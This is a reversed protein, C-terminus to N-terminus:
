SFIPAPLPQYRDLLDSLWTKGIEFGKEQDKILLEYNKRLYKEWYDGNKNSSNEIENRVQKHLEKRAEDVDFCTMNDLRFSRLYNWLKVELPFEDVEYSNYEAPIYESWINHNVSKKLAKPLSPMLNEHETIDCTDLKAAFEKWAVDKERIPILVPAIKKGVEYNAIAAPSAMKLWALFEKLESKDPYRATFRSLFDIANEVDGSENRLILAQALHRASVSDSPKINLGIEASELASNWDKRYMALQALISHAHINDPDISIVQELLNSAQAREKETDSEILLGALEVRCHVQEPFRRTTEWLVWQARHYQGSHLLAKEWLMWRIPEDSDLCLSLHIWQFIQPQIEPDLIEFKKMLERVCRDLVRVFHYHEGTVHLYIEQRSMEQHVIRWASQLSHSYKIQSIIFETDQSTSPQINPKYNFKEGAWKHVSADLNPYGLHHLTVSLNDNGIPHLLEILLTKYNAKSLSPNRSIVGELSSVLQMVAVNGFHKRQLFRAVLAQIQLRLNRLSDEESLPLKALALLGLNLYRFSRFRGAETVFSHWFFQLDSNSQKVALVQWYDFEPDRYSSIALSKFWQLWKARNSSLIQRTKPLSFYLPWQLAECVQKSFGALKRPAPLPTALKEGLWESLGQDLLDHLNNCEAINGKVDPEGLLKEKLTIRNQRPLIALLFEHPTVREFPTVEAAGRLLDTVALIPNLKLEEVWVHWSM